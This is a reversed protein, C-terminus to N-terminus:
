NASKLQNILTKIYQIRKDKSFLDTNRYGLTEMNLTPYLISSMFITNKFALDEGSAELIDALLRLLKSNVEETISIIKDDLPNLNRNEKAEKLIVLIGPYRISYEMIENTATILREEPPIESADIIEYASLTNKIYFEKVQKLLEEKSRFYYNIASVNVGAEKVISRVPVKFSGTKGILYLTKDLIKEQINNLERM